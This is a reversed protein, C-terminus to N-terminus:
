SSGPKLSSNNGDMVKRGFRPTRMAMTSCLPLASAAAASECAQVDFTETRRRCFCDCPIEPSVHHPETPDQGEHEPNEGWDRFGNAPPTRPLLVRGGQVVTLVDAWLM